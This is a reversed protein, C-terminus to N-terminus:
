IECYFLQLLFLSESSSSPKSVSSPYAFNHVLQIHANLHYVLQVLLPSIIYQQSMPLFSTSIPLIQHSAILNLLIWHSKTINLSIHHSRTTFTTLNPSINQLKTFNQLIHHFKVLNSSIRHSKTVNLSIQYYLHIWYYLIYPKCTSIIAASQSNQITDFHWFMWM